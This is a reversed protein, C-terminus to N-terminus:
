KIIKNYIAKYEQAPKSKPAYEYLNRHLANAELYSVSRSIEGLYPCKLARAQEQIQERMYKNIRPRADFQTIFCGLVKLKKNTRRQEKALEIIYKQGQMSEYDALMPIILGTATQLAEYTLGCFFPPTDIIILDYAKQIRELAESLRYVSGGKAGKDAVLAPAGAIVDINQKTPQMCDLIFAGNLLSYAGPATRDAGLMNTLAAQPDLDICLVKKGEHAACQALTACSATKGTGGKIVASTIIQM